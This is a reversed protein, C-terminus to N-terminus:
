VDNHFIDHTGSLAIKRSQVYNFLLTSTTFRNLAIITYIYIQVREKLTQSDTLINCSHEHGLIQACKLQESFKLNSDVHEQLYIM